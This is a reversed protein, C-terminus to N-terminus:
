KDTGRHWDFVALELRMYEDRVEQIRHDRSAHLVQQIRKEKETLPRVAANFKEELALSRQAQRSSTSGRRTPKETFARSGELRVAKEYVEVIWYLSESVHLVDLGTARIQESCPLNIGGDKKMLIDPQIRDGDDETTPRIVLGRVGRANREMSINYFYPTGLAIQVADTLRVFSRLPEMSVLLLKEFRSM